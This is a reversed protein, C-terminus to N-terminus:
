QYIKENKLDKQFITKEDQYFRVFNAAALHGKYPVYYESEGGPKMGANRWGLVWSIRHSSLVKLFTDTWWTKDSLNGGFETLAPIKNKEKAIEGLTSLMKDLDVMFKENPSNRQYIDFGTIDLWEDGPYKRLYEEKSSFRDTNYAYLLHHLKKEDRLYSVSFIWLRKFEDDTCNKGGWWFWSGNLEHYPRFIVPIFEGASGKLGNMFFAVKDLWTKYLENKSGGPLISAVTGEAPNWATKGTLPNNLHWSITIVGGRNYGEKILQQMLDFPVSDLNHPSDIELHGLEWGYVAPYDGTIDKIDSRGASGTSASYKWGVGYALDDQHGFMFGKDLLKKLNNYLAITEKTAKKDSPLEAAGASSFFNNAVFSVLYLFIFTQKNMERHAYTAVPNLFVQSQIDL